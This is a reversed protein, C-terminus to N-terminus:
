MSIVNGDSNTKEPTLQVVLVWSLQEVGDLWFTFTTLLLMKGEGIVRRIEPMVLGGSDVDEAM